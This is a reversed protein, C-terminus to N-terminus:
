LPVPAHDRAMSVRFLALEQTHFRPSDVNRKKKVEVAAPTPRSLRGVSRQRRQDPIKNTASKYAQDLADQKAQEEPTLKRKEPAGISLGMPIQASAAGTLVTVIIAASILKRVVNRAM